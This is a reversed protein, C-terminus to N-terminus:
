DSEVTIEFIDYEKLDLNANQDKNFEKIKHPSSMIKEMVGVVKDQYKDDQRSLKSLIHEKVSLKLNTLEMEQKILKITEDM